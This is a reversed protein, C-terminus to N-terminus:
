FFLLLTNKDKRPPSDVEEEKCSSLCVRPRGCACKAVGSHWREAMGAGRSDTIASTFMLAMLRGHAHLHNGGNTRTWDAASFRHHYGSLNDTNQLTNNKAGKARENRKEWGHKGHMM